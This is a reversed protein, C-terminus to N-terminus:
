KLRGTRKTGTGHKLTMTRNVTGVPWEETLGDAWRVTVRRAQSAAALGFYSRADGASLV